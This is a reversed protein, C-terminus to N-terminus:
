VNLCEVYVVFVEIKHKQNMDAKAQTYGSIIISTSELSLSDQILLWLLITKGTTLTWLRIAM